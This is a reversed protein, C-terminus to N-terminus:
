IGTRSQPQLFLLPDVLEGRERLEFYLKPTETSGSTGVKGVIQGREVEQGEQVLIESCHGYMSYLGNQHDIQVVRGFAEHNAVSVVVGGKVARIPAGLSAEVDIGTHFYQEGEVESKVSGFRQVITGGVPASLQYDVKGSAPVAEDRNDSRFVMRDYSNLWWGFTLYDQIVATYDNEQSFTSRVREQVSQALKNEM